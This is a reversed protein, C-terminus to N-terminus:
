HCDRRFYKSGDGEVIQLAIEAHDSFCAADLDREFKMGFAGAELQINGCVREILELAPEDALVALLMRRFVESLHEGNGFGVDVVDQRFLLYFGTLGAQESRRMTKVPM